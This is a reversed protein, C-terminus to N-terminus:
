TLGESKLYKWTDLWTEPDRKRFAGEEESLPFSKRTTLTVLVARWPIVWKRDLGDLVYIFAIAGSKQALDLHEAQHREISSFPFSTESMCAKAEFVVHRGDPLFGSFDPKSPEWKIHSGKVKPAEWNKSVYARGAGSLHRCEARIYKEWRAGNQQSLNSM